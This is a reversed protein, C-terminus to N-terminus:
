KKTAKGELVTSWEGGEPQMEFKFTYSTSSLQKISYRGKFVKGDMKNENIWTWSDGELTGKAFVAEGSNNFEHYTYTKEEPDYGWVALAKEPGMPTSGNSHGVLFFGGEMWELHDTGTIKGGPGFSSPKVEGESTWTGAFYDLKKLEPGPKPAPATQSMATIAFVLVVLLITSSTRRM